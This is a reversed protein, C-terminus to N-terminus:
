FWSKELFLRLNDFQPDEGNMNSTCTSVNADIYMYVNM